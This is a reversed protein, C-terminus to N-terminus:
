LSSLWSPEKRELILLIEKVQNVSPTFIKLDEFNEIQGIYKTILSSGKESLNLNFFRIRAPIQNPSKLGFGLKNIFSIYWSISFIYLPMETAIEAVTLIITLPKIIQPVQSRGAFDNNM